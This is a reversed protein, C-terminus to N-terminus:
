NTSHLAVYSVTVFVVAFRQRFGPDELQVVGPAARQRRVGADGPPSSLEPVTHRSRTTWVGPLECVPVRFVRGKVVGELGLHQGGDIRALRDSRQLHNSGLVHADSVCVSNDDHGSVAYAGACQVSMVPLDVLDLRRPEAAPEGDVNGGLVAIDDEASQLSFVGPIGIRLSDAPHLRHAEQEMIEDGAHEVAHVLVVLALERAPYRHSEAQTVLGAVVASFGHSPPCSIVELEWGVHSLGKGDFLGPQQPCGLRAGCAELVLLQALHGGLDRRVALVPRGHALVTELLPQL